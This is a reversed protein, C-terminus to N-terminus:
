AACRAAAASCGQAAARSEAQSLPSAASLRLRSRCTSLRTLPPSRPPSPPLSPPRPPHPTAAHPTRHTSFNPFSTSEHLAPGRYAVPYTAICALASWGTEGGCLLGSVGGAGGKRPDWCFGVGCRQGGRSLPRVPDLAAPTAAVAPPPALNPTHRVPRIRRRPPPTPHLPHLIRRHHRRHLAPPSSPRPRRMARPQQYQRHQRHGDPGPRPCCPGPARATWRGWRWTPLRCRGQLMLM